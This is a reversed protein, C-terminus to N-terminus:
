VEHGCERPVGPQWECGLNDIGVRLEHLGFASLDLGGNDGRIWEGLGLQIGNREGHFRLHTRLFLNHETCLDIWRDQASQLHLNTVLKQVETDSTPTARPSEGSPTKTNNTRQPRFPASRPILRSALPM